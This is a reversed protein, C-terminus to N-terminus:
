MSSTTAKQTVPISLREPKSLGFSKFVTNAILGPRECLVNENNFRTGIHSVYGGATPMGNEPGRCRHGYISPYIHRSQGNIFRLRELRFYTRRYPTPLPGGFTLAPRPNM